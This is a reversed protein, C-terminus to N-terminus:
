FRTGASVGMQFRNYDYFRSLANLRTYSAFATLQIRHALTHGLSGSISEGRESGRAIPFFIPNEGRFNRDFHQAALNFNTSPSLNFATTLGYTSALVYSVSVDGSGTVDRGASVILSLRPSPHYNVSADYGAGAYDQTTARLPNVSLYRGGLSFSLRPAVARDFALGVNSVDSGNEGGGLSDQNPQRIRSTGISLLLSGVTPVAYGVGGSISTTHQNFLSLVDQSNTVSQYSATISPFFGFPRRCSLTAAYNQASQSNKIAGAGANNNQRKTLTGSPGITCYASFALTGRGSAALNIQDLSSFRRHFEYAVDGNVSLSNRGITRDFSIGLAPSLVTDSREGEFRSQNLQFVNSDYITAVRPTVSFSNIERGGAQARVGSPVATVVLAISLGLGSRSLGPAPFFWRMKATQSGPSM